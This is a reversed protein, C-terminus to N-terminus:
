TISEIGCITVEKSKRGYNYEFATYYDFTGSYVSFYRSFSKCNKETNIKQTQGKGCGIILTNQYIEFQMRISHHCFTCSRKKSPVYLKSAKLFNM